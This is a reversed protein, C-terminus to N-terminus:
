ALAKTVARLSPHAIPSKVRLRAAHRASIMSGPMDRAVMAKAESEGDDCWDDPQAQDENHLGHDL